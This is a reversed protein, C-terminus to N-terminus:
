PKKEDVATRLRHVGMRIDEESLGGYGMIIQHPHRGKRIAHKEVPVVHIGAANLQTATPIPETLQVVIHMGAAQGLVLADPFYELISQVLTSRRKQYIKKMRRIHKDLFGEEIFRALTLQDLSATHRDAYWKRQQFPQVLSDPLIVYGIRLGPSLTKSFTGVYIVRESDLTHMAQVPAGEYFFESDYDDEVIFTDVKRAYEILQVRRQISLISGLPVQHSPTVFVFRPKENRPLESPDMGEKDTTVPHLHAGAFSFINRMEDTVPDEVAVKGGSGELLATIITLAQTAGTTVVIQQYDAQIGRTRNVYNAIAKKLKTEGGASRYGFSDNPAEICVQKYLKGWVQKPFYNMAPHSAKFDIIDELPSELPIKSDKEKQQNEIRTFALGPSIFTGSRPKTYTYGELLLQEYAENVTNRSVQLSDALERTSPLRQHGSLTGELILKQLHRQIQQSLTETSTKSIAFWLM